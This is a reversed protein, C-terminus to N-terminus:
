QVFTHSGGLTKGRLSIRLMRMAAAAARARAAGARATSTMTLSHFATASVFHSFLGSVAAQVPAPPMEQPVSWSLKKPRTIPLPLSQISSTTTRSWTSRRPHLIWHTAPTPTAAASAGGMPLPLSMQHPSPAVACPSIRSEFEAAHDSRRAPVMMVRMWFVVAWPPRSVSRENSGHRPSQHILTLMLSAASQVGDELMAASSATPRRSCTLSSLKQTWIASASPM